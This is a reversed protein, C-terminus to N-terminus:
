SRMRARAAARHIADLFILAQVPKRLYAVAGLATAVQEGEPTPASTMVLVSLGPHTTGLAHLLELGSMRPMDVDTVVVDVAWTQLVAIAQYANTATSVVYGAEALMAQLNVLERHDDEVLLVQMTRVDEEDAMTGRRFAMVVLM